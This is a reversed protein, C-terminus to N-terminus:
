LFRDGILVLNYRDLSNNNDKFCNRSWLSNKLLLRFKPYSQNIHITAQKIHITELIYIAYLFTYVCSLIKKKWDLKLRTTSFYLVVLNLDFEIFRYVMVTLTMVTKM